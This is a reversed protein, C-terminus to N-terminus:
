RHGLLEARVKDWPEVEGRAVEDRAEAIAAADETTLPEDAEPAAELTWLLPDDKSPQAEFFIHDTAAHQVAAVPDRFSPAGEADRPAAGARAGETDASGALYELYRRAAFLEREPLKGILAVLADRTTTDAPM